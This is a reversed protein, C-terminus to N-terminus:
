FQPIRLSRACTCTSEAVGHLQLGLARSRQMMMSCVELLVFSRRPAWACKLRAFYIDIAVSSLISGGSCLPVAAKPM